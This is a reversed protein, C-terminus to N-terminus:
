GVCQTTHSLGRSSKRTTASPESATLAKLYATQLVDEAEARNGLYRALFALFQAHSQVLLAMRGEHDSVSTADINGTDM